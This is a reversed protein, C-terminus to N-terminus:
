LPLGEFEIFTTDWVKEGPNLNPIQWPSGPAYWQSLKDEDTNANLRIKIGM